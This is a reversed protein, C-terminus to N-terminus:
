GMGAVDKAVKIEQEEDFLEPVHHAGDVVNKSVTIQQGPKNGGKATFLVAVM